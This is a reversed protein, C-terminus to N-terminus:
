LARPRRSPPRFTRPAEPEGDLDLQRLLRAFDARSDREIKIAPHPRTHRGYRDPVTLSDARELMIRAQNARDWAVLAMELLRLHHEEFLYEEMLRRWWARSPRSLHKPPAPLQPM